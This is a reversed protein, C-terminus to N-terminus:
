VKKVLNFYELFNEFHAASKIYFMDESFEQAKQRSNSVLEQKVEKPMQVAKLTAEVYEDENECLFGFNENQIIDKLPGASKHAITILGGAMMEVVAIGFHEDKMTHLGIDSQEFIKLIDKFSPNKIFQIKDSLHRQEVEKKLNSLLQEDDDNRVSGVVRFQLKHKEEDTLRSLVREFVRIQMMHDKEPRFQAFSMIQVTSNEQNKELELLSTVNCPPYLKVSETITEVQRCPAWLSRIHDDTWTSNTFTMDVYNGMFKYMKTLILYYFFKINSFLGSQAIFGRNNFSQENRIVKQIMDSSIFPYHTYSVVKCGLFKKVVIYSFAFGTSDFFIDPQYKLLCKFTYIMTGIAQLIMTAVRFPELLKRGSVRIFQIKDKLELVNINFRDTAKKLIDEGSVQDGTYIVLEFNERYAVCNLLSYVLCWLVKEGGGASNCYPHFFAIKLKSNGKNRIFKKLRVVLKLLTYIALLPLFVYLFSIILIKFIFSAM